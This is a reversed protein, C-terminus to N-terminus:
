KKPNVIAGELQKVIEEAGQGRALSLPTNGNKDTARPDAGTTLLYKVVEVKGTLAAFMLATQGNGNAANADAKAAILKKAIGVHGKFAAAALATLGMKNRADIEVKPQALILEVAKEQGNYAAVILLTDGRANLENVPQAAAFFAELTELDGERAAQFAIQSLKTAVEPTIAVRDPKVRPAPAVESPAAVVPSALFMLLITTQRIILKPIMM